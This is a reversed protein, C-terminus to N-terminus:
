LSTNIIVGGSPLLVISEENQLSELSNCRYKVLADDVTKYETFSSTLHHLDLEILEKSNETPGYLSEILVNLGEDSFLTPRVQNVISKVGVPTGTVNFYIM